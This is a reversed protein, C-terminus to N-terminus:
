LGHTTPEFGEVAVFIQHPVLLCSTVPALGTAPVFVKPGITYGPKVCGGTVPFILPEFGRPDALLSIDITGGRMEVESAARRGFM